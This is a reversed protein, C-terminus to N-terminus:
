PIVQHVQEKFTRLKKYKEEIISSLPVPQSYQEGIVGFEKEFKVVLTKSRLINNCAQPKAVPSAAEKIVLKLSQRAM